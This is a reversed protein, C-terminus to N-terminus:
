TAVTNATPLLPEVKGNADFAPLVLPCTLFGLNKSRLASSCADTTQSFTLQQIRFNEPFLHTLYALEFADGAKGLLNSRLSAAATSDMPIPALLALSSKFCPSFSQRKWATSEVEQTSARSDDWFCSPNTKTIYQLECFRVLVYFDCV